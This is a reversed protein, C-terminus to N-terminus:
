LCPIEDLRISRICWTSLDNTQNAKVCVTVRVFLHHVVSMTLCLFQAGTTSLTGARASTKYLPAIYDNESPVFQMKPEMHMMPLAANM